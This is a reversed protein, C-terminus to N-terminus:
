IDCGIIIQGKKTVVGPTSVNETDVGSTTGKNPKVGPASGNETHASESGNNTQVGPTTGKNVMYRM